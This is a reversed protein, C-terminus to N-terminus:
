SSVVLPQLSLAQALLEYSRRRAQHDHVITVVMLEELHLATAMQTLQDRVQEPAGAFYRPWESDDSSPRNAPPGLEQIAEEITPIPGRLGQRTRRRFLRASMLLRQTEENTDACVVGLAVIARPASLYRSPKFQFRYQELAARTPQPDIFHAFAYPLGFYAAAAASWLSSGLLWVEPSGPMQPSVTIRRFPHDDAFGGHLFNLLETLQAPFDDAPARETRERRLAYTELPSGGPARGVGLDIRGPYLAHLMRFTEAVKLPSYHPLLVGGSGVRISSTEAAVRAILIEPTPSALAQMAHHEAIWYRTYGLQETLKALDITNHLADAPTSGASVPSQDVVSLTLSM